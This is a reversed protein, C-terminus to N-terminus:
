ACRKSVLMGGLHAFNDVYPTVGIVLNIAFSLALQLATCLPREMEGLNVLFDALCAGFLGLVAGSAGVMIMQPLFVASCLTGVLGSVLYLIGIRLMGFELELSVGM